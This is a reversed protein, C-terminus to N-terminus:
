EWVEVSGALNLNLQVSVFEPGHGIVRIANSSVLPIIKDITFVMNHTHVIDGVELANIPYSM